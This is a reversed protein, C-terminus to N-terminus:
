FRLSILIRNAKDLWFYEKMDMIAFFLIFVLRMEFKNM